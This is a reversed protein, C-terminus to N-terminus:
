IQDKKRSATGSCQNGDGLICHFVTIIISLLNVAISTKDQVPKLYILIYLKCLAAQTFIFNILKRMIQPATTHEYQQLTSGLSVIVKEESKPCM